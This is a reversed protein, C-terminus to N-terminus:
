VLYLLINRIWSVRKLVYEKFNVHQKFLENYSVTFVWRDNNLQFWEDIYVTDFFLRKLSRFLHKLLHLWCLHFKFVENVVLIVGLNVTQCFKFIEIQRTIIKVIPLLMSFKCKWYERM